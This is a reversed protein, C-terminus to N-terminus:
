QQAADASEVATFAPNQDLRPPASAAVPASRERRKAVPKLPAAVLWTSLQLRMLGCRLDYSSWNACLGGHEAIQRLHEAFGRRDNARGYSAIAELEMQAGDPLAEWGGLMDGDRCHDLFTRVHDATLSTLPLPKM